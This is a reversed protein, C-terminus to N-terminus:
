ENKNEGEWDLRQGCNPCYTSEWDGEDDNFPFGCIPCGGQDYVPYGDAYGDSYRNVKKPIQKDLAEMAICISAYDKAQEENNADDWDQLAVARFKRDLWKLAEKKSIIKEYNM